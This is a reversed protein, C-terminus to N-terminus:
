VRLLYFFAKKSFVVFRHWRCANFTMGVGDILTVAVCATSEVASVVNCEDGVGDRLAAHGSSEVTSV